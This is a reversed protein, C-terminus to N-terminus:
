SATCVLLISLSRTPLPALHMAVRPLCSHGIADLTAQYIATSCCRCAPAECSVGFWLDVLKTCEAAAAGAAARVLSLWCLDCVGSGPTRVHSHHRVCFMCFSLRVGSRPSCRAMVSRSGPKLGAALASKSSRPRGSIRPSTRSCAAVSRISACTISSQTPRSSVALKRSSTSAGLLVRDVCSETFTPVLPWTLTYSCHYLHGAHAWVASPAVVLTM